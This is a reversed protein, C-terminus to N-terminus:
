ELSLCLFARSVHLITLWRAAAIAVVLVVGGHINWILIFKTALITVEVHCWHIAVSGARATRFSIGLPWWEGASGTNRSFRWLKLAIVTLSISISSNLPNWNRFQCTKVALKIVVSNVAVEFGVVQGRCLNTLCNTHPWRAIQYISVSDSAPSM